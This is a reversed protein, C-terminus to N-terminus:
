RRRHDANPAPEQADASGLMESLTLSHEITEGDVACAPSDNLEIQRQHVRAVGASARRDPDRYM